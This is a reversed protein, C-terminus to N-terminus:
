SAIGGKSDVIVAGRQLGLDLLQPVRADHQHTVCVVVAEELHTLGLEWPPGEVRVSGCIGPNALSRDVHRKKSCCIAAATHFSHEQRRVKGRPLRCPINALQGRGALM